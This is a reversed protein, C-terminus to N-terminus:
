FGSRASRPLEDPRFSPDSQHNRRPEVMVIKQAARRRATFEFCRLKGHQLLVFGARTLPM